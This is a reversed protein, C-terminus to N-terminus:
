ENNIGEKVLMDNVDKYKPDLIKIVANIGKKNFESKFKVAARQGADDNDFLIKIDHKRLYSYWHEKLTAVGPLGVANHGLQIMSITDIAGECIFINGGPDATRLICENYLITPIDKPLIYKLKGYPEYLRLQLSEIRKDYSYYPFIIGESWWTPKVQNDKYKLLGCRILETETFKSKIKDYFMNINEISRINCNSIVTHNIGRSNLYKIAKESIVSDHIIEEFINISKEPLSQIKSGVRKPHHSIVKQVSGLRYYQELWECANQFTIDRKKQVLSIVGGAEGCGFCKWKNTNKNFSLSPTKEKHIFCLSKNNSNIYIGLAEAVQIIPINELTQIDYKKM